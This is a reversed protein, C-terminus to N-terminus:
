VKLMELVSRRVPGMLPLRGIRILSLVLDLSKDQLNKTRTQGRSHDHLWFLILGMQLLWLLRPLHEKMDSPISPESGELMQQFVRISSERIERTQEGFPSLPSSPDAAVRFLVGLFSRYPRMQRFKYDLVLQLREKLSRVEQITPRAIYEQMEELSAQYYAFVLKEKSDFYYYAAGLAMSAREAIERMTTQEFGKERFLELAAELIRRRTEESKKVKVIM